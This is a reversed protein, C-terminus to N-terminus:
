PPPQRECCDRQEIEVVRRARLRDHAVCWAALRTGAAHPAADIVLEGSFRFRTVVADGFATHGLVDRAQWAPVGQGSGPVAGRGGRQRGAAM